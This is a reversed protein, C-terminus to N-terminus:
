VLCGFLSFSFFSALPFFGFSVFLVVRKCVDLRLELMEPEQTKSNSFSIFGASFWFCEWHFCVSLRHDLSPRTRFFDCCYLYCSSPHSGPSNRKKIKKKKEKRILIEDPSGVSGRQTTSLNINELLGWPSLWSVAVTALLSNPSEPSGM